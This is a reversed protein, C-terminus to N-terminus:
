GEAGPARRSCSAEETPCGDVRCVAKSTARAVLGAAICFRSHDDVGTVIKLETADELMVGSMVDMQWLQM